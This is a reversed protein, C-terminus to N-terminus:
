QQSKTKKRGQAKDIAHLIANIEALEEASPGEESELRELGYGVVAYELEDASMYLTAKGDPNLPPQDEDIILFGDQIAGAADLAKKDWHRSEERTHEKPWLEHSHRLAKLVKGPHDEKTITPRNKNIEM